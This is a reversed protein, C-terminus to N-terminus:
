HPPPPNANPGAARNPIVLNTAKLFDTFSKILHNRHRSTLDYNNGLLVELTLQTQRLSPIQRIAKTLAKRQTRYHPCQLLRHSIGDHHPCHDCIPSGARDLHTLRNNFLHDGLTLRDITVQFTRSIKTDIYASSNDPPLRGNTHKFLTKAKTQSSLITTYSIHNSRTNIHFNTASLPTPV